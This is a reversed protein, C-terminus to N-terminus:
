DVPNDYARVMDIKTDFKYSVPVPASVTPTSNGVIYILEVGATDASRAFFYNVPIRHFFNRYVVPTPSVGGCAGPGCACPTPFPCTATVSYRWLTNNGDVCYYFSAIPDGSALKGGANLSRSSYNSCGSLVDSTSGSAPSQLYTANVMDARLQDLSLLTTGSVKGRMTELFQTKIVSTAFMLVGVLVLTSLALSVVLEMLTFGAAGAKRSLRM